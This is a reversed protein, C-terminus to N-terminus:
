LGIVVEDGEWSFKTDLGVARTIDEIYKVVDQSRPDSRPLPEPSASEELQVPIYSLREIKKGSIICKLIMSKQEDPTYPAGGTGLKKEAVRWPRVPSELEGERHGIKNEMAFNALSHLIVKGKYVEIGKLIHPHTGLILDAGADIAAHGVQFEYDPIVAPTHHIGWHPVVVVIDALTRAMEIDEIMNQLDERYPWTLVKALTGPQYGPGGRDYEYPHYLTHVRVVAMGPRDDEAKNHIPGMALYGLFAVKVGNKDVIAPQRAESTNLGFGCVAIDMNKLLEWCEVAADIGWNFNVNSAMNCVNFGALTLAPMKKPDYPKGRYYSLSDYPCKEAYTGEQNFFAIDASKIIRAVKAFSLNYDKRALRVDGVALLTISGNEKQVM